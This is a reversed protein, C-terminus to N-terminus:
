SNASWWTFLQDLGAQGSNASIESLVLSSEDTWGVLAQQGKLACFVTGSVVNPTANRRWPGPSQIRGPCVVVSSSQVMRDFTSVLTDRDAVLTYRAAPREAPDAAARCNLQALADAQPASAACAEAPVGTPLLTALRQEAAPDRTDELVPTEEAVTATDESRTAAVTLAGVVVAVVGVAGAVMAWRARSMPARKMDLASFDFPPLVTPVHHPDDVAARQAQHEVVERSPRVAYGGLSPVPLPETNDASDAVPDSEADM